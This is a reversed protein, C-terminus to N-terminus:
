TNKELTREFQRKRKVFFHKADTKLLYFKGEFKELKQISSLTNDPKIM